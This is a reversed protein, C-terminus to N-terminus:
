CLRDGKTLWTHPHHCHYHTTQEVVEKCMGWEVAEQKSKRLAFFHYSVSRSLICWLLRCGNAATCRRWAESM